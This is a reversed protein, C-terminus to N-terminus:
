PSKNLINLTFSLFNLSILSHHLDSFYELWNEHVLGLWVAITMRGDACNYGVGLLLHFTPIISNWM